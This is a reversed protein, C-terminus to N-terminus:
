GRVFLALKRKQCHYTYKRTRALISRCLRTSSSKMKQWHTHPREFSILNSGPNQLLPQKKNFNQLPCSYLIYVWCIVRIILAFIFKLFSLLHSFFIQWIFIFLWFLTILLLLICLHLLMQHYASALASPPKLRPM